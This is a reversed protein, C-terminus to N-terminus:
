GEEDARMYVEVFDNSTIVTRVKHWDEKPIEFLKLAHERAAKRIHEEMSPTEEPAYIEFQIPLHKPLVEPAILHNEGHPTFGNIVLLRNSPTKPKKVVKTGDGNKAMKEGQRMKIQYSKHNKWYLLRFISLLIVFFGCIM